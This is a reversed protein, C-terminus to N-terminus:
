NPIYGDLEPLSARLFDQLRAEAAEVEEDARIPTTVRVLAGDTRGLRIADWVNAAKIMLEDTLRRHRLEFWYYVLQRDLGHVIVARNVDLPGGPAQPLIRATRFSAIEWGGAPICQTPSHITARRDQAEYWAVYFNVPAAQGASAYNAMLYDDANLIDLYIRDLTEDDGSWDGVQLPFAALSKHPPVREGGEPLALMGTGVAALLGTAVLVAPLARRVPAPPVGPQPMLADLELRRVFLTNRGSILILAQLTVFLLVLGVLFIVWGEFAHMFGEAASIGSANVLVGTLAIRLSNIAITIPGASLFLLAKHWFPGQYLYGVLYAFSALPFLYRLGNCAEAVQLRYLGLDIVNGNLFVSYGLRRLAETGLESSVLQMGTSLDVYLASPLPLAFLLYAIAPGLALLGRWGYLAMSLGFLAGVFGYFTFSPMGGIKAPVAILAAAAIAAVGLWTGSSARARMGRLANWVLLAAIPPVIWGYSFEERDWSQVAHVLGDLFVFALALALLCGAALAKPDPRLALGETAFVDRM